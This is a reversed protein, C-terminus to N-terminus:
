EGHILIMAYMMDYGEAYLLTWKLFKICLWGDSNPLCVYTPCDSLSGHTCLVNPQSAEQNCWMKSWNCQKQQLCDVNQCPTKWM